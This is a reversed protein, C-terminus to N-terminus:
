FRYNSWRNRNQLLHKVKENEYILDQVKTGQSLNTELQM